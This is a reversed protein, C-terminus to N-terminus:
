SCGAVGGVNGDVLGSESTVNGSGRAVMALASRSCSMMALGMSSGRMLEERRVGGVVEDNLGGNDGEKGRGRPGCLLCLM